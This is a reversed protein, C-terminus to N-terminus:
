HLSQKVNQASRKPYVNNVILQANKAATLALWRFHRLLANRWAVEKTFIIHRTAIHADSNPVNGVITLAHNAHEPSWNHTLPNFANGWVDLVKYTLGTNVNWVSPVIPVVKVLLSINRASTAYEMLLLEGKIRTAIPFVSEMSRISLTLVHASVM